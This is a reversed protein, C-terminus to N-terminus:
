SKGYAVSEEAVSGALRRLQAWYLRSPKNQSNEWRNITVYSVGLREALSQQTLGIEVRLRKIIQAYDEGPKPGIQFLPKAPM